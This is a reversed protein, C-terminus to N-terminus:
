DDVDEGEEEEKRRWRRDLSFNDVPQQSAGFDPFSLNIM